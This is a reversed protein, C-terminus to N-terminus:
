QLTTRGSFMGMRGLKAYPTIFCRWLCEEGDQRLQLLKAM